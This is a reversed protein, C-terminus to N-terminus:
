LRRKYLAAVVGGRYDGRLDPKRDRLPTHSVLEDEEEGQNELQDYVFGALMDDDPKM